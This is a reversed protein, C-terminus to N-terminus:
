GRRLCLGLEGELKHLALRRRIFLLLLALALPVLLVLLLIIASLIFQRNVLPSHRPARLPLSVVVVCWTMDHWVMGHLLVIPIPIPLTVRCGEYSIVTSTVCILLLIRERLVRKLLSNPNQQCFFIVSFLVPNNEDDVSIFVFLGFSYWFYVLLIYWVVLVICRLV